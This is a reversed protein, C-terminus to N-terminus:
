SIWWSSGNTNLGTDNDIWGDPVVVRLSSGNRYDKSLEPLGGMSVPCPMTINTRLDICVPTVIREPVVLWYVILLLGAGLLGFSLVRLITVKINNRFSYKAM